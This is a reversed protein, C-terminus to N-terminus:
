DVHIHPTTDRTWTSQGPFYEFSSSGGQNAELRYQRDLSCKLDLVVAKTVTQGAGVVTTGTALRAWPGAIRQGFVKTSTRVDSDSWDITVSSGTRNHVEITAGCGASVPQAGMAAMTSVALASGAVLAKMKNKM